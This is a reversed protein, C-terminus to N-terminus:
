KFFTSLLNVQVLVIIANARHSFSFAGVGETNAGSHWVESDAMTEKETAM